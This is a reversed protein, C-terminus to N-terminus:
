ETYGSYFFEAPFNPSKELSFDEYIMAYSFDYLDQFKKAPSFFLCSALADALLGNQAIVWTAVINKVSTKTHPHMIHHFNGWARRNVASGCISENLIEAIGIVQKTDKPNELGVRLKKNSKDQYLIDGSADITYSEIENAKLLDGVCDTLYGKGAAGFDLLVPTLVTLNPFDYMLVDEWRPVDQLPKPTFSYAADYGCDVLLQGILPTFAGDTLTYLKKYLDFLPKADHPLTYMGKELSMKTILSDSRFRSYSRDFVAICDKIETLLHAKEKLPSSTKIDIQWTTGIADFVFQNEM